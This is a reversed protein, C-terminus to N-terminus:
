TVRADFQFIKAQQAQLIIQKKSLKFISGEEAEEDTPGASSHVYDEVAPHNFNIFNNNGFDIRLATYLDPLGEEPADEEWVYLSVTEVEKSPLIGLFQAWKDPDKLVDSLLM